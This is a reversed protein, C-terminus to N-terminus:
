YDAAAKLYAVINKRLDKVPYRRNLSDQFLLDTAQVGAENVLISDTDPDFTHSYKDGEGLHCRGHIDSDWTTEAILLPGGRGHRVYFYELYVDRRGHNAIEIQLLPPSIPGNEDQTAPFYESDAILRARDRIGFWISFGASLFSVLLAVISINDSFEM